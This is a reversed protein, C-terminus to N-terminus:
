PQESVAGNNIEPIFQRGQTTLQVPAAVNNLSLPNTIGATHVGSTIPRMLHLHGFKFSDKFFRCCGFFYFVFFLVNFHTHARLPFGRFRSNLVAM